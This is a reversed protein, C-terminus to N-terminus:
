KSIKLFDCYLGLGFLFFAVCVEAFFKWNNKIFTFIKLRILKNKLVPNINFKFSILPKFLYIFSYFILHFGIGWVTYLIAFAIIFNELTINSYMSYIYTLSVLSVFVTIFESYTREIAYRKHDIIENITQNYELIFDSYSCESEITFSSKLTHSSLFHFYKERPITFELDINERQNRYGKLTLSTVKTTIFQKSKIFDEFSDFRRFERQQKVFNITEIVCKDSYNEVLEYLKKLNYLDILFPERHVKKGGREM